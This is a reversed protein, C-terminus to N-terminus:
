SHNSHDSRNGDYDQRHDHENHDPGHANHHGHAHDILPYTMPRHPRVPPQTHRPLKHTEMIRNCVHWELKRQCIRYYANRVTLYVGNAADNNLAWVPLGMSEGLFRMTLARAWKDLDQPMDPSAEDQEYPWFELVAELADDSARREMMAWTSEKSFDWIMLLVAGEQGALEWQM